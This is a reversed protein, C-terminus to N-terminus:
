HHIVDAPRESECAARRSAQNASRDWGELMEPPLTETDDVAIIGGPMLRPLFFDIERQVVDPDHSGDLYVFAYPGSAGAM